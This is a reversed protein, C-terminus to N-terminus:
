TGGGIVGAAVRRCSRAAVWGSLGYSSSIEWGRAGEDRLHRRCAELSENWPGPWAHRRGADLASRAREVLDDIEIEEVDFLINGFNDHELHYAAVGEFIVDVPAHGVQWSEPRTHLVIRAAEADVRYGTVRHDHVSPENM